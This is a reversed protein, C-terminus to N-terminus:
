IEKRRQAEGTIGNVPSYKVPPILM